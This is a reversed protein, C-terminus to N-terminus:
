NFPVGAAPSPLELLTYIDSAISPQAAQQESLMGNDLKDCNGEAEKVIEKGECLREQVGRAFHELLPHIFVVPFKFKLVYTLFVWREQGGNIAFTKYKGFM